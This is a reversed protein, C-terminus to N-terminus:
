RGLDKQMRVANRQIDLVVLNRVVKFTSDELGSLEPNGNCGNVLHQDNGGVQKTLIIRETYSDSIRHM